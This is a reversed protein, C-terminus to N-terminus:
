EGANDDSERRREDGGGGPQLRRFLEEAMQDGGVALERPPVLDDLVHLERRRTGVADPDALEPLRAAVIREDRELDARRLRELGEVAVLPELPLEIELVARRAVGLAVLNEALAL